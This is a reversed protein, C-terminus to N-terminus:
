AMNERGHRQYEHHGTVEVPELVCITFIAPVM